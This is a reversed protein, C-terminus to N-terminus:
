KKKLKAALANPSQVQVDPTVEEIAKRGARTLIDFAPRHKPALVSRIRAIEQSTGERIAKIFAAAEKPNLDGDSAAKQVATILTVQKQIDSIDSEATKVDVGAEQLALQDAEKQGAAIEAPTDVFSAALNGSKSPDASAYRLLGAYLEDEAGGKLRAKQAAFLGKQTTALEKRKESLEKQSTIADLLRDQSLLNLPNISGSSSSFPSDPPAVATSTAPRYGRSIGLDSGNPIEGGNALGVLGGESSTGFWNGTQPNRFAKSATGVLGAVGAANQAFSAGPAQTSTNISSSPALTHGRIIASYDQLSREPFTRAIEYEQQAIDLAQQGRGQQTAGVSELASLENLRQRPVNTGLNAFQQGAQLERGRQERFIRQADEYAAASGRSQIDALNRETARRHEAQMVGERSGGYGGFRASRGAIQQGTVDAIRQAERKEIDVVNQIYPNMYRGISESTPTATSAETLQQSRDFYPDSSGVVDRTGEFARQQDESFDALRPGGFPVYGESERREQIAQSKGFIDAVYPKLETPFETQTVTSQQTPAPKSGGGFQILNTHPNTTGSGGMSILVSMEDKNVHALETDGDIGKGALDKYLNHYLEIKEQVSLGSIIIKDKENDLSKFTKSM